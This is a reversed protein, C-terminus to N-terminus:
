RKRGARRRTERQKMCSGDSSYLLVIAILHYIMTTMTMNQGM